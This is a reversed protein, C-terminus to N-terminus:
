ASGAPFHPGNVCSRDSITAAAQELPLKRYVQAFIGMRFNKKAKTRLDKAEAPLAAAGVMALGAAKLLNRRSLMKPASDRNRQM